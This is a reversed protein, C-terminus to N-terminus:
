GPNCRSPPPSVRAPPGLTRRSRVYRRYRTLGPTTTVSSRSEDSRERRARTPLRYGQLTPWVGVPHPGGRVHAPERHAAGRQPKAWGVIPEHGAPAGERDVTELARDGDM